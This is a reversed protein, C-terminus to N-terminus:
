PQPNDYERLGFNTYRDLAVVVVELALVLFGMVPVVIM